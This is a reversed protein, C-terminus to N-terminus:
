PQTGWVCNSHSSSLQSLLMLNHVTVCWSQWGQEESLWYFQCVCGGTSKRSGQQAENSSDFHPRKALSAGSSEPVPRKQVNFLFGTKSTGKGWLPFLSLLLGHFVMASGSDYVLKYPWLPLGGRSPVIDKLSHLFPFELAWVECHQRSASNFVHGLVCATNGVWKSM